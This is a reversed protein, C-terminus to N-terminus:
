ESQLIGDSDSIFKLVAVNEAFANPNSNQVQMSTHHCSLIRATTTRSLYVHAKRATGGMLIIFKLDPIELIVEALYQLGNRIDDSKAARIKSKKSNGIYWPVTNWIAIESRDIGAEELQRRFNRASPDPNDISIYGSKVAKPGPAELLFLYKAKENGNKPDFSPVEENLNQEQKIKNVIDQLSMKFEKTAM